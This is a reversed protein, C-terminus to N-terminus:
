HQSNTLIHISTLLTTFKFNARSNRKLTVLITTGKDHKVNMINQKDTHIHLIGM